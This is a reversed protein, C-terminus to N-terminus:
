SRAALAEARAACAAMTPLLGSSAADELGPAAADKASLRPTIGDPLTLGVAPDLPNVGHEATPDYASTCLYVATTDDDVACFAHGLGESLWVARRDVTDLLVAEWRGFTPSGVRIDVVYDVLAGSAATVYKGQGPPVD